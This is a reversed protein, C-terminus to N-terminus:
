SVEEEGGPCLHAVFSGSRKEKWHWGERKRRMRDPEPFAPASLPRVQVSLEGIKEGARFHSATGVVFGPAARFLPAGRRPSAAVLSVIYIFGRAAVAAWASLRAPPRATGPSPASAFVRGSRPCHCSSVPPVTSLRRRGGPRPRPLAALLPPRQSLRGSDGAGWCLGRAGRTGAAGSQSCPPPLPRPDTSGCLVGGGGLARM